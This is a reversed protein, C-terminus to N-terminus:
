PVVKDFATDLRSGTGTSDDHMQVIGHSGGETADHEVHALFLDLLDGDTAGLRNLAQRSLVRFSFPYQLIRGFDEACGLRLEGFLNAVRNGFLPSRCGVPFHDEVKRGGNFGRRRIQICILDLPHVAVQLMAVGDDQAHVRVIVATSRNSGRLKGHHCSGVSDFTTEKTIALASAVDVQNGEREVEIRLTYVGTEVEGVDIFNTSADLVAVLQGN